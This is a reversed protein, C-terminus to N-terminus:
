RRGSLAAPPVPAPSVITGRRQPASARQYGFVGGGYTGAYITASAGDLAISFVTPSTLGANLPSWSAGRDASRFVGADQTGAYVAGTSREVALSYVNSATLGASSPGWTAGGDASAWIGGGEVGVFLASSNRPDIGISFVAGNFTGAPTWTAGADGSRFLGHSTGAYLVGSDPASAIAFVTESGSGLPLAAWTAGGDDSRLLGALYTGAYVVSPNAPDAAVSYVNNTGPLGAVASWSLGDASTWIGQDTGAYWASAGRALAFVTTAGLDAPQWSAGRDASRLIGSGGTAAYVAGDAAVLANVVTGNMGRNAANWTTGGDASRFTGFNTGAWVAGPTRVDTRIAFVTARSAAPAAAAWTSGGDDSRWLGGDLTGAWVTGTAADAAVAYASAGDFPSASPTWTAGGDTSKWVGEGFTAAWLHSPASPDVEVDMVFASAIEAASGSWSGGGDGTSVVGDGGTAAYLRGGGAALAYVPTGAAPATANWTTGGDESRFVGGSQTGAYVAGSADVAVSYVTTDSLGTGAIAWSRGGDGSRLVGDDTAAFLAGAGAALGNVVDGVGGTAVKSWTAGDDRSVFLGGGYTGEWVVTPSAPDPLLASVLGGEPGLSSWKGVAAGAPAALAIIAIAAAQRIRCSCRAPSSPRKM